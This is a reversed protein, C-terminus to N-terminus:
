RRGEKCLQHIFYFGAVFVSGLVATQFDTM